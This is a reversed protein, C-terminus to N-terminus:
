GRVAEWVFMGESGALPILIEDLAGSGGYVTMHTDDTGITVAAGESEFYILMHAANGTIMSALAGPDPNKTGEGDDGAFVTIDFYCNLKLIIDAFSGRLTKGYGPRSLYYDEVAFFQGGGNEEVRRPLFDVVLRPEELLKEITDNAM